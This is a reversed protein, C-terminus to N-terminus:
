ITCVLSQIHFELTFVFLLIGFKTNVAPPSKSRARWCRSAATLSAVRWSSFPWHGSHLSLLQRITGTIDEIKWRIKTREPAPDMVGDLMGVSAPQVLPVNQHLEEFGLKWVKSVYVNKSQQSTNSFYYNWFSLCWNWTGSATSARSPHSLLDMLIPFQM